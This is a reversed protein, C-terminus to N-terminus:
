ETPPPGDLEERIRRALTAAGFPKRVLHIAPDIGLYAIAADPHASMFVAKLAPRAPTLRQHLEQGGMLPMLIDSLLLDISRATNEALELAEAANAAQLVTYGYKALVQATLARVGTENEVLLITETGGAPESQPLPRTAPSGTVRPLYFRIVTGHGAGTEVQVDGGNQQAIGYVSSLGLGSGKGVGKTSFFPEFLHALADPSMGSGTDRVALMVYPGPAVLRKGGPGLDVNATEITLTGGDPMADRANAVLSLLIQEIQAPDAQVRGLEPDLVTRLKTRGSLVRRLASDLKRVVGNIDLIEPEIIQRGSFALLQNTLLAARNGATLIERACDHIPDHSDTDDVIMQSYGTIVTLLNNFDHAVGGALRGVADMKQSQALREELQRRRTTDRAVGVIGTVTGSDDRLPSLSTQFWLTGEAAEISWEFEVNEGALARAYAQEHIAARKPGLIERPTHGALREAAPTHQGLRGGYIGTYRQNTDLTFVLEHLSEVLSRFRQESRRLAEEARRRATIDTKVTAAWLADGEGYCTITTLTIVESGDRHRNRVEGQWFRDRKLQDIFATLSPNMGAPEGGYLVSLNRGALQGEDYGAMEHMARNAMVIEGTHLDVIHFGERMNAILNELLARREDDKKKATTERLTYLEGYGPIKSQFVDFSRKERTVESRASQVVDPALDRLRRGDIEGAPPALLEKAFPNAFVITGRANTAIVAEGLSSLTHFLLAKTDELAATRNVLSLTVTAFVLLQMVTVPTLPGHATLLYGLTAISVGTAALAPYAGGLWLALVVAAFFPIGLMPRMFECYRAAFPFALAAPIAGAAYALLIRAKERTM